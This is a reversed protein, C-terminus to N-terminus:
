LAEFDALIFFLIKDNDRSANRLINSVPYQGDAYGGLPIVIIRFSRRRNVHHTVQDFRNPNVSRCRNVKPM